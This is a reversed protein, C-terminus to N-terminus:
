LNHIDVQNTNSWQMKDSLKHTLNKYLNKYKKIIYMIVSSCIVCLITLWIVVIISIRPYYVLAQFYQYCFFSHILWMNTSHKGLFAFLKDLRISKVISDIALIFIPVFLYDFTMPDDNRHRVYFIGICILLYVVINDLKNEIFMKKIKCFLNFKAFTCGMLFCPLWELMFSMQTYFFSQSFIILLDSKILMPLIQYTFVSILMINVISTISSNRVVKITIPFTVMTLVYLQFFWWEGNYTSNYGTLNDFLEAFKFARSGIFFSIPVFIAFVIWYNIYLAKLQKFLISVTNERNNTIKKYIGFGSLFLFMAVCIKGFQGLLPEITIGSMSFISIYSAGNKIRDPFAFLHHMFMLIIAIGKVIATDKKTFEFKEM